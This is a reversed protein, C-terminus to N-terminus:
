TFVDGIDYHCRRLMDRTNLAIWLRFGPLCVTSWQLSQRGHRPFPLPTVDRFYYEYYKSPRFTTDAWSLIYSNTVNDEIHADLIYDQLSNLEDSAETSLPLMFQCYITQTAVFDSINTDEHLTFSFLHPLLTQLPADGCWVDKWLLVADGVSPVCTTIGWDIDMLCFVDHWWFSGCPSHAHPAGSTYYKM